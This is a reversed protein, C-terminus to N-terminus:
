HVKENGCFTSQSKYFTVVYPKCVVLKLHTYYNLCLHLTCVQLFVCQFHASSRVSLFTHTALTQMMLNNVNIVSIFSLFCLLCEISELCKIEDIYLVMALITSLFNFVSNIFYIFLLCWSKWVSLIILYSFIVNWWVLATVLSYVM